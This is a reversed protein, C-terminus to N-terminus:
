EHAEGESLPDVVEYEKLCAEHLTRGDDDQGCEGDGLPEGCGACLAGALLKRMIAFGMSEAHRAEDAQVSALAAAFRNPDDSM